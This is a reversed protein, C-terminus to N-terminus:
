ANLDGDKVLYDSLNRALELNRVTSSLISWVRMSSNMSNAVTYHYRYNNILSRDIVSQSLTSDMYSSIVQEMDFGTEPDRNVVKHYASTMELSRLDKTEIVWEMLEKETYSKTGSLSLFQTNKLVEDIWVLKGKIDAYEEENLHKTKTITNLKKLNSQLLSAEKQLQEMERTNTFDYIEHQNLTIVHFLNALVVYGIVMMMVMRLVKRIQERM